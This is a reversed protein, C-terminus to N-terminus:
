LLFGTSFYHKRFYDRLSGSVAWFPLCWWSAFSRVQKRRNRNGGMRSEVACAAPCMRMMHLHMSEETNFRKGCEPCTTKSDDNMPIYVGHVKHQHFLLRQNSPFSKGCKSCKTSPGPGHVKTLHTERAEETTFSLQCLPCDFQVGGQEHVEIVHRRVANPAKFSQGCEEVPCEFPREDSHVSTIHYELKSAYSFKLDCFSCQFGEAQRRRYFPTDERMQHASKVHALLDKVAEFPQQCHWCHYEYGSSHLVGGGQAAIGRPDKRYLRGYGKVVERGVPVGMSSRRVQSRPKLAKKKSGPIGGSGEGSADLAAAAASRKRGKGKSVDSGENEGVGQTKGELLKIRLFTRAREAASRKSRSGSELARSQDAVLLSTDQDLTDNFEERSLTTAWDQVTSKKRPVEDVSYEPDSESAM